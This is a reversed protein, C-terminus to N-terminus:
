RRTPPTSSSAWLGLEGQRQLATAETDLRRVLLMDRYLDRLEADSLTIDYREHPV